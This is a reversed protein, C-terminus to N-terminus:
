DEYLGSRNEISCYIKAPSVAFTQQDTTKRGQDTVGRNECENDDWELCEAMATANCM